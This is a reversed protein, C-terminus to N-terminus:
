VVIRAPLLKRGESELGWVHGQVVGGLSLAEIERGCQAKQRGGDLLADHSDSCFPCELVVFRRRRELRVPTATPAPAQLQVMLALIRWRGRPYM